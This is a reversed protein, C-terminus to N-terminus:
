LLLALPLTFWFRSGQGPTSQLGVSGGHEEVITKCIHLGLGLGISHGSLVRVDKARYFREWIRQQEDPTLGSGQDSVTVRVGGGDTTALVEVPRSAESYKLANTLYNRLVQGLRDADGRVPLPGAPLELNIVRERTAHRQDEVIEYVVPRLDCPRMHLELKGARIRSVDILDSALRDQVHVQRMARELYHQLKELNKAAEEEQSSELRHLTRQAFQLNGQIATLPGKLEHSAISLFENFLRNTEQEQRALQAQRQEAERLQITLEEREIYSILFRAIIQMLELKEPHRTLPHPRPDQACLTGYVRGDSYILPVGIYSGIHYERTTPLRQYFPQQSSDEVILPWGTRWITQCYTRNLAGEAGVAPRTTGRNRAEMITLTCQNVDYGSSAPVEGSLAYRVKGVFLTQCDLFRGIVELAARMAEQSTSFGQAAIQAVESLMRSHAEEFSEQLDTPAEQEDSGTQTCEHQEAPFKRAPPWVPPQEFSESKM